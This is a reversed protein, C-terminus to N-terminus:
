FEVVDPSGYRPMRLPSYENRWGLAKEIASGIRCLEAEGFPKGVVQVGIPLGQEDMGAPISLAPQGTANFPQTLRTYAAVVPEEGGDPYRVVLDDAPVAVAPLTPTILANLHHDAFLRAMSQKVYERAKLAQIYRERPFLTTAQVRELLERGYLEPHKRIGEAHV